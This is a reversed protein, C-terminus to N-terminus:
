HVPLHVEPYGALHILYDAFDTIGICYQVSGAVELFFISGKAKLGAM